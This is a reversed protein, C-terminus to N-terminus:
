EKSLRGSVRKEYLNSTEILKEKAPKTKKIKKYFIFCIIVVLLLLGLGILWGYGSTKEIEKKACTGICCNGDFTIKVDGDCETNEETCFMGSIEECTQNTIEEIDTDEPFIHIELPFLISKKESINGETQTFNITLDKRYSGQEKPNFNFTLNYISKPAITDPEDFELFDFPNTISIDIISKEAFNILEITKSTKNKSILNLKLSSPNINLKTKLKSTDSTLPMYIVPVRFEKYTSIILYDFTKSPALQIKEFNGPTISIEKSDYTIQLNETGKNSLILEPPTISFIFGPKISLIQEEDTKKIEIKKEITAEQPEPSKYLIEKIKITFNGQKTLYMYLFYTNNYFFLDYEFFAPKDGEFFEINKKSISELINSAPIEAMLTEGPQLEENQLILQPQATATSIIFLFVIIILSKKM